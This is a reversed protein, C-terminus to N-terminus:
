VFESLAQLAFVLGKGVLLDVSEDAFDVGVLVSENIVLLEQVHHSSLILFFSDM